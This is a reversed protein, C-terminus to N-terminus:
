ITWPRLRSREMLRSSPVTSGRSALRRTLPLPEALNAIVGVEPSAWTRDSSPLGVDILAMTGIPPALPAASDTSAM